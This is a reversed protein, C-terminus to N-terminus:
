FSKEPGRTKKGINECHGGFINKVLSKQPGRGSCFDNPGMMRFNRPTRRLRTTTSSRLRPLKLCCSSALGLSLCRLVFFSQLFIIKEFIRSFIQFNRSKSRSWVGGFQSGHHAFGGTQQIVVLM